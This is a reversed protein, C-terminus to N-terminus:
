CNDRERLKGGRRNGEEGNHERLKLIIKFRERGKLKPNISGDGFKTKKRGEIM